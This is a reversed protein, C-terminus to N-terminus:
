KSTVHFGKFTIHKIDIYTLTSIPILSDTVFICCSYMYKTYITLVLDIVQGLFNHSM